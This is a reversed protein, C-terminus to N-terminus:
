IGAPTAVPAELDSLRKRLATLDARSNAIAQLLLDKRAESAAPNLLMTRYEALETVLAALQATVEEITSM